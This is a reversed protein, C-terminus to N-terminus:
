NHSQKHRILQKTTQCYLGCEHCPFIALIEDTHDLQYHKSLCSIDYYFKSCILCCFKLFKMSHKRDIHNIFSSLYTHGKFSKAIEEPCECCTISQLNKAFLEQHKVYEFMSNFTEGCHETCTFKLEKWTKFLKSPVEGNKLHELTSIVM